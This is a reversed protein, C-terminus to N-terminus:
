RCSTTYGSVSSQLSHVSIGKSSSAFSEPLGLLPLHWLLCLRRKIRRILLRLRRGIRPCRLAAASLRRRAIDPFAYLAPQRICLLPRVRQFPIYLLVSGPALRVEHSTGPVTHATPNWASHPIPARACVCSASAMSLSVVSFPFPDCPLLLLDPLGPRFKFPPLRCGITQACFAAFSVRSRTYSSIETSSGYFAPISYFCLYPRRTDSLCFFVFLFFCPAMARFIRAIAGKVTRFRGCKFYDSFYPKEVPILRELWTLMYYETRIKEHEYLYSPRKNAWLCPPSPTSTWSWWTSPSTTKWGNAATEGGKWSVLYDGTDLSGNRGDGPFPHPLGRAPGALSIGAPLSGRRHDAGHHLPIRNGHDRQRGASLGHARRFLQRGGGPHDHFFHATIYECVTIAEINLYVMEKIHFIENAIYYVIYGLPKHEKNYYVAVIM